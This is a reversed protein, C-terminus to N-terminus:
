FRGCKNLPIPRSRPLPQRDAIPLPRPYFKDEAAAPSTRQALRRLYRRKAACNNPCCGTIRQEGVAAPCARATPLNCDAAHLPPSSRPEFLRLRRQHFLKRATAQPSRLSAFATAPRRAGLSRGACDQPSCYAADHWRAHALIPMEFSLNKPLSEM